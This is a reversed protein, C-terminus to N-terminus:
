THLAEISLSSLNSIPSLYTPFLYFTLFNDVLYTSFVDELYIENEFEYVLISKTIAM